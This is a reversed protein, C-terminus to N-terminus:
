YGGKVVAMKRNYRQVARGIVDDGVRIGEVCRRTARQEQLLAEFGAMMAAIHDDMVLAVAEQITALPAEVNTGHRQDGVVALFPRNAPLVAGKALYPIQPASITKIHFGLSKGGLEPVWDPVTFQLKNLLAILGNIGKVAGTILGNIFGIIGNAMNKFGNSLPDLLTTKFWEGAKGFAGQISNWANEASTSIKSWLGVFFGVIPQIVNTNFWEQVVSWTARIKEWTESVITAAKNFMDSVKQGISCVLETLWQIISAVTDVIPQIVNKQFWQVIENFTTCLQEWAKPVFEGIASIIGRFAEVASTIVGKIWEVFQSCLQPITETFFVTFAQKIEDWHKVVAVIAAILLAVLAAIVAAAIAVSGGLEAAIIVGAVGAMAGITAIVTNFANSFDEKWQDVTKTEEFIQVFREFELSADTLTSTMASVNGEIKELCKQLPLFAKSIAAVIEKTLSKVAGFSATVEELAMKVNSTDVKIEVIENETM